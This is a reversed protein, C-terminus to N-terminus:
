SFSLLDIGYPLVPASTKSAEAVYAMEGLNTLCVLSVIFTPRSVLDQVSASFEL